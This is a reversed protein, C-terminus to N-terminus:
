DPYGEGLVFVAGAGEFFYFLFPFFQLTVTSFDLLCQQLCTIFTLMTLSTMHM